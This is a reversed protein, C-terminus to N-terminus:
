YRSLLRCTHVGGGGVELGGLGWSDVMRSVHSWGWGRKSEEIGSVGGKDLGLWWFTPTVLGVSCCCDVYPRSDYKYLM